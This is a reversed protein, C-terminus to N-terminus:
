KKETFNFSLTIRNKAKNVPVAHFTNSRFIVLRNNLPSVMFHDWNLENVEDTEFVFMDHKYPTEFKLPSANKDAKVFYVASFQSLPHVHCEQFDGVKYKNFWSESCEYERNLGYTKAYQNVLSIVRKHVNIFNFDESCNHTLHSNYVESLWGKGGGEVTKSLTNINKLVKYNEEDSLVNDIVMATTPFLLYLNAEVNV